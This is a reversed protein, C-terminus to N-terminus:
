HAESCEVVLDHQGDIVVLSIVQSPKSPQDGHEEMRLPRPDEHSEKQNLLM